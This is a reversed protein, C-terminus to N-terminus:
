VRPLPPLPSAPAPGLVTPMLLRVGQFGRAGDRKHEGFRSRLADLFERRSGAKEGTRDAWAKWSAFLVDRPAWADAALKCCEDLWTSVSDEATLYSDTAARVGAPAQLGSRQWALCGEVM